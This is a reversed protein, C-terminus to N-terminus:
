LDGCITMAFDLGKKKCCWSEETQKNEARKIKKRMLVM